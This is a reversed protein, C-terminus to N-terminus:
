GEGNLATWNGEWDFCETGRFRRKYDYFSNGSYSYGQYYFTKGSRAAFAMEILMTYTGLGRRALEPEFM